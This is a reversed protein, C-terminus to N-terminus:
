PCRGLDTVDTFQGPSGEVVCGIQHSSLLEVLDAAPMGPLLVALEAGDVYRGYDLAQGLALRVSMRDAKAKAEFLVGGTVDAIDTYLVGAPTAIRYRKVTRGQSELYAQFRTVLQAERQEASGSAAREFESRETNVAAIPV